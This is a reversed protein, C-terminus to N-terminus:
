TSGENRIGSASFLEVPMGRQLVNSQTATTM